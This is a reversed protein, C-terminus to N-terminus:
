SLAFWEGGIGFNWCFTIRFELGSQWILGSGSTQWIEGLINYVDSM